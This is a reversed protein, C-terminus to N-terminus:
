AANEIGAAQIPMVGGLAGYVKRESRLTELLESLSEEVFGQACRELEAATLAIFADLLRAHVHCSQRIDSEIAPGRM